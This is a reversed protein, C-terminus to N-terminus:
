TIRVPFRLAMTTGRGRESTVSVEGRHVTEVIHRVLSLGLGTGKAAGAGERTRYFKDFIFPLEDNAIGIGSDAITVTLRSSKPDLSTAVRVQGGTPTYKISNGIVNMVAQHILDRDGRLTPLTADGEFALSLSKEEAHPALAKIVERTIDNIRVPERHIPLAGAEIRSINLINNVLRQLRGTETEIIQYFERKQEENRAEDDILMEAYARISSLPTRLEHSVACVFDSKLQAIQRERTIDHFVAVLGGYTGSDSLVCSLTIAYTRAGECTAITHDIRRRHRDGSGPETLLAVLRSDDLLREIPRGQALPLRFGFLGEATSNALSLCGRADIALVPDSISHMITEIRHKEADVIQMQSDLERKQQRLADVRAVVMAVYEALATMVPKLEDPVATEIPDLLRDECALRRLHTEIHELKRQTVYRDLLMVAIAVSILLACATWAVVRDRPSIKAMVGSLELTALLAVVVLLVITLRQMRQCSFLPSRPDRHERGPTPLLGTAKCFMSM